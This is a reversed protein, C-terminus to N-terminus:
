GLREFVYHALREFSLVHFRTYGRVAPDALFRRELEFTAQKPAVLLLPPGEPTNGLTARAEALCRFTKGSGAPGLLLRVQVAWQRAVSLAPCFSIEPPPSCVNSLWHSAIGALRPSYRSPNM